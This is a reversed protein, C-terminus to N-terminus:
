GRQANKEKILNKITTRFGPNVKICEPLINHRIRNRSAFNSDNNTPDELWKLNHHTAYGTIDEKSYLILPKVVNNTQYSYVEGHGRLATFLYWETADDLHQGVAVTSDLSQFFDQRGRRWFDEKSGVVPTHCHEVILQLSYTKSFSQAFEFEVDAFDNGHHYFALIPRKGRSLISHVLAVSDVGGSFGVYIDAPLTRFHNLYM